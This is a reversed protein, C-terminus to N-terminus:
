RPNELCKWLVEADVASSRWKITSLLAVTYQSITKNNNNRQPRNFGKAAEDENRKM